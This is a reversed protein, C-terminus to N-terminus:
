LCKIEIKVDLKEKGIDNNSLIHENYLKDIVNGYNNNTLPILNNLNEIHINTDNVSKRGVL